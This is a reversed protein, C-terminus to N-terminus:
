QHLTYWTDSKQADLMYIISSNTPMVFLKGFNTQAKFLIYSNYTNTTMGKLLGGSATGFYFGNKLNSSNFFSYTSDTKSVGTQTVLHDLSCYNFYKTKNDVYEKTPAEKGNIQLDAQVNFVDAQVGLKSQAYEIIRSTYDNTSRNFHFDIFPTSHYLDLAALTARSGSSVKGNM